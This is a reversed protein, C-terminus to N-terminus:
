ALLLLHTKRGVKSTFLSLCGFYQVFSQPIECIQPFLGSFLFPSSVCGALPPWSHLSLM